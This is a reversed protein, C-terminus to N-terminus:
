LAKEKNRHIFHQLSKFADWVMTSWRYPYFLPWLVSTKKGYRYLMYARTPFINRWLYQLREKLALTKWHRFFDGTATEPFYFIKDWYTENVKAVVIPESLHNCVTIEPFLGHIVNLIRKLFIDWGTLNGIRQIKGWDLNKPKAGLILIIDLLWRWHIMTGHGVMMHASAIMLAASLNPVRLKFGSLNLEAIEEWFWSEYRKKNLAYTGPLRAHVEMLIDPYHPHSYAIAHDIKWTLKGFRKPIYEKFGVQYFLKEVRLFEGEGVFIDLDSCPRTAPDPYVQYALANGKIVAYPIQNEELIPIVLSLLERLRIHYILSEMYKIRAKPVLGEMWPFVKLLRDRHYYFWPYLFHQDLLSSIGSPEAIEPPEIASFSPLTVKLIPFLTLWEPSNGGRPWIHPEYIDNKYLALHITM